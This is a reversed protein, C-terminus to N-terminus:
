DCGVYPAALQRRGCRKARRRRKEAIVKGDKMVKLKGLVQGKEIPALVPQLTELNTQRKQRYRPSPLTFM